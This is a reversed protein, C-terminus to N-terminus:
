WGNECIHKMELKEKQRNYDMASKHVANRGMWTGNSVQEARMQRRSKNSIKVKKKM